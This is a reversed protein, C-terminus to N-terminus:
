PATAKERERVTAARIEAAIRAIVEELEESGGGSRNEERGNGCRASDSGPRSAFDSTSYKPWSRSTPRGATPSNERGGKSRSEGVDEGCGRERTPGRCASSDLRSWWRRECRGQASDFSCRGERQWRERRLSAHHIRRLQAAQSTPPVERAREGANPTEGRRRAPQRLDWSSEAFRLMAAVLANQYEADTVPKVANPPNPVNPDNLPNAPTNFPPANPPQTAAFSRLLGFGVALALCIGTAALLAFRHQM